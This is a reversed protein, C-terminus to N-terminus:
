NDGDQVKDGLYLAFTVDRVQGKNGAKCVFFSVFLRRKKYTGVEVPERLTTGLPNNWNTLTIKLTKKGIVEWKVPLKKEGEVEVFNLIFHLSEQQGDGVEIFTEGLDLAIFAKSDLLEKGGTRIKM